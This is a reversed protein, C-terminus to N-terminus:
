SRENLVKSVMYSEIDFDRELIVRLMDFQELSEAKDKKERELQEIREYPVTEEDKRELYTILMDLQELEELMWEYEKKPITIM